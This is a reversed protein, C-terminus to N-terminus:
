SKKIIEDLLDDIDIVSGERSKMKGHPLNVMGYSLHFLHNSWPFNMKKLINFLVKFHHNQENGVVYIMNDFSLENQRIIATGIDQTIYVQNPYLPDGYWNHGFEFNSSDYLNSELDFINSLINSYDNEQLNSLPNYEHM